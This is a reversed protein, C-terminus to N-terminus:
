NYSLRVWQGLYKTWGNLSFIAVALFLSVRSLMMNLVQGTNNITAELVNSRDAGAAVILFEALGSNICM